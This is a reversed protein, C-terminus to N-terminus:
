VRALMAIVLSINALSSTVVSTLCSVLKGVSNNNNNNCELSCFGVPLALLWFCSPGLLSSLGTLLSFVESLFSCLLLVFLLLLFNSLIVYTLLILFIYFFSFSM